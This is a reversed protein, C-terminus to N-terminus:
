SLFLEHNNTALNMIENVLEQANANDINISRAIRVEDYLYDDIKNHIIRKVELNKHWDVITEAKLIDFIDLIIQIITTEDIGYKAITDKLNRYFIDAGEKAQIAEPLADDERNIVQDKIAKMANLAEADAIKGEKIKQLLKTIKDSFRHFFEPDKERQETLTRQTQAAIAEAKSKDSGLHAIAESFAEVDNISIQKTMVEAEEANIYKDLIRILQEKHESFDASDAYKLRVTKRIELFKKLDMKYGDIEKFINAFDQLALCESFNRIFNNLEKYFQEREPEDELAQIYAQDDSANKVGKFREHLVDYSGELDKIKTIVDILTNQVDDEDFNGFLEMASKINQANESYDIIFGATKPNRKNDYIRNVRAIAQLLNHDKLDKALYLVTNRPADFGTLLKDVVILIEVGEENHKFSDVKQKEYSALDRYKNSIEKLFGAVEKKHSDKEDEDATTESIIVATNIKGSEELFKQFLIASYKSPAVIQAKLGSGQFNKVYHAQVDYAIEAIRQPNNRIVKKDVFQQLARKEEQSLDATIREVQRDVQEKNQKLEVYRGEYILPLIVGDALADDITYKDIYGGFKLYSAKEKKMLPTGTFGIYCANPITRNMELNAIGGQTRHAEDILVFINKSDDVFGARHNKASEFKHVLTTIVNLNKEKILKLLHNGSRAVVVDKKLNCARFTDSIQKDLDKRDTVIIIRPNEIRPDEILAKVFMVMTLSKGSGQTHWVLGGKRRTGTVSEEENEITRLSKQIAFYQQYRTIKKIGGDFLIFNRAIDLLRKPELLHFIGRDQESIERSTIQKHGLTSGNLDSCIQLYVKSDVTKSILKSIEEDAVERDIDKERWHTYFKAPTGTTGYKLKTKNTAILLQPYVFLKPCYEPGQNRNMQTIAEKVDTGSKKNEIIAMPIGNVFLLIDPRIGSKGDADFEVTVHYDNNEPNDFDIYRFNFSQNKGDIFEKITKGAISMLMHYVDKSTDLLGELPINELEEIADHISKDSFPYTKGKYEYANIAKLKEYAIEKLIFKSNDMDRQHAIDGRSLYKFGMNILLEVAPLQSQKAEDFNAPIM